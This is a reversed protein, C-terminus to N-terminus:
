TNNRITQVHILMRMLHNMGSLINEIQSLNHNLLHFSGEFGVFQVTLSKDHIKKLTDNIAQLKEGVLLGGSSSLCYDSITPHTSIFAFDRMEEEDSTRCDFNPLEVFRDKTIKVDRFPVQEMEDSMQFLKDVYAKGEETYNM